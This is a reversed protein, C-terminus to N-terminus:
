HSFRELIAFSLNHSAYNETTLGFFVYVTIALFFAFSLDPNNVFNNKIKSFFNNDM